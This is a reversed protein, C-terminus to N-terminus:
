ERAVMTIRDSLGAPRLADCAALAAVIQDPESASVCYITGGRAEIDRAFTAWGEEYREVVKMRSGGEAQLAEMIEPNTYRVVLNKDHFIFAAGATRNEISLRRDVRFDDLGDAQLYRRVIHEGDTQQIEQLRRTWASPGRPAVARHRTHSASVVNQPTSCPEVARCPPCCPMQWWYYDVVLGPNRYNFAYPTYRAGEYVLGASNPNFAYPSYRISGPILGPNNYSFAYPSYIIQHRQSSWGSARGVAPALAVVAVLISIRKM